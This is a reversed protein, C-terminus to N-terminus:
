QFDTIPKRPLTKTTPPSYPHSRHSAALLKGLTQYLWHWGARLRVQQQGLGLWDAITTAGRPYHIESPSFFQPSIATSVSSHSSTLSIVRCVGLDTLFSPPPPARSVLASLKGKCSMIFVMTLCATGRCGMSTWSPASRWRYGMSPVGCHLLHIDSPPQSGTPLGRQLLCRGPGTSGHLSFGMSSCTQQCFKHGWPPGVSSCGTGSPSCGTPPLWAPATRSSSCGMPLVWTPSTQPSSDGM